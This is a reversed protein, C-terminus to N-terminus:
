LYTDCVAMKLKTSCPTTYWRGNSAGELGGHAYVCEGYISPEGTDWPSFSSIKFDNDHSSIFTQNVSGKVGIWARRQNGFPLMTSNIVREVVSHITYSYDFVLRADMDNCAKQAETYNFNGEVLFLRRPPSRCFAVNSVLVKKVYKEYCISSPDINLSVFEVHENFGTRNECVNQFEVVNGTRISYLDGSESNNYNLGLRVVPTTMPYNILSLTLLFEEFEGENQIDPVYNYSISTNYYKPPLGLYCLSHPFYSYSNPTNYVYRFSNYVFTDPIFDTPSTSPTRQTPSATPSLSPSISPTLSTPYISPISTVNTQPSPIQNVYIVSITVTVGVTVCLALLLLFLEVNM